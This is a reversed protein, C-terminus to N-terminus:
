LFKNNTSGFDDVTMSSAKNKLPHESCLNTSKQQEGHTHFGGVEVIRIPSVITVKVHPLVVVLVAVVKELVVVLLFM